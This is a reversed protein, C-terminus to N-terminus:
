RTQHETSRESVNERAAGTRLATRTPVREARGVMCGDTRAREREGANRAAILAWREDREAGMRSDPM